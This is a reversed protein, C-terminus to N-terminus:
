PIDGDDGDHTTRTVRYLPQISTHLQLVVKKKEGLSGLAMMGRLPRM